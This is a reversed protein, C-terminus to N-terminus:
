SPIAYLGVLVRVLKGIREPWFEIPNNMLNIIRLNPLVQLEAPIETFKNDSLTIIELKKLNEIEAPLERLNNNSANMFGLNTLDGIEPPLSELQNASVHLAQVNTLRGIEGSLNKLRNGRLDLSFSKLDSIPMLGIETDVLLGSIGHIDKLGKNILEIYVVGKHVKGPVVSGVVDTLSKGTEEKVAEMAWLSSHATIVMMAILTNRTVKYM